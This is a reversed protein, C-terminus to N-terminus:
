YGWNFGGKAIYEDWQNQANGWAYVYVFDDFPNLNKRNENTYFWWRVCNERQFAYGEDNENPQDTFYAIAHGFEHALIGVAPTGQYDERKWGIKFDSDGVHDFYDADDRFNIEYCEMMLIESTRITGMYELAKINWFLYEDFYNEGERNERDYTALQYGAQEEMWEDTFKEDYNMAWNLWQDYTDFYFHEVSTGDDLVEDHYISFRVKNKKIEPDWEGSLCYNIVM